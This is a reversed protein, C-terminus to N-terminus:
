VQKGFIGKTDIYFLRKSTCIVSDRGCKYALKVKESPVIAGLNKLDAEVVSEDLRAADGCLYDLFKDAKGGTAETTTKQPSPENYALLEEMSDVFIHGSIYKQIEFIDVKKKDFDISMDLGAAYIKLEVDKDLMGATQVAFAKISHYPCSKYEKMKGTLLKKDEIMIRHSTFYFRDRLAKFAMDVREDPLLIGACKGTLGGIAEELPIPEANDFGLM